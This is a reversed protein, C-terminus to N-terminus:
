LELLSLLSTWASLLSAWIATTTSDPEFPVVACRSHEDNIEVAAHLDLMSKPQRDNKLMPSRPPERVDATEKQQLIHKQDGKSLKRAPAVIAAPRVMSRRVEPKVKTVM